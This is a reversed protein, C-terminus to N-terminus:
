KTIPDYEIDDENDNEKCIMVTIDTKDRYTELVGRAFIIAYELPMSGVAYIGNILVKYEDRIM